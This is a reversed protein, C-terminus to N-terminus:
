ASRSEPLAILDGTCPAVSLQVKPRVKRKERRVERAMRRATQAYHEIRSAISMLIFGDM